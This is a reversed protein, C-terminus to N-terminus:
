LGNNKILPKQTQSAMVLSSHRSIKDFLLAEVEVRREDKDSRASLHEPSHRTNRFKPMIM